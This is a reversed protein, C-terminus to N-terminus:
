LGGLAFCGMVGWKNKKSLSLSYLLPMPLCLIFFDTVINITAYSIWFPASLICHGGGPLTRDWYYAVPTCQFITAIIFAFGSSGVFILGAYCILRFKKQPFVRLYFLLLAMKNFTIVVKYM